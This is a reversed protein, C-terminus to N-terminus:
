GLYGLTRGVVYSLLAILTFALAEDWETLRRGAIQSQRIAGVATMLVATYSAGLVLLRFLLAGHEDTMSMAFKVSVTVLLILKAAFWGLAARSASVNSLAHRLRDSTKVNM